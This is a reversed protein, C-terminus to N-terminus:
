SFVRRLVEIVDLNKLGFNKLTNVDFPEKELTGIKRFTDLGKVM